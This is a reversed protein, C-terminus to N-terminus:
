DGGRKSRAHLLSVTCVAILVCCTLFLSGWLNFNREARAGTFLSVAQLIGLVCYIAGHISVGHMMVALKRKM